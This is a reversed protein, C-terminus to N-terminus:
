ELLNKRRTVAANASKAHKIRTIVPITAPSYESLTATSDDTTFDATNSLTTSATTASTTSVTAETTASNSDNNSAGTYNLAQMGLNNPVESTSSELNEVVSLTDNGHSGLDSEDDSSEKNM